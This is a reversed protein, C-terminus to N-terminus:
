EYISAVETHNVREWLFRDDLYKKAIPFVRRKRDWPQMQSFFSRLSEKQIVLYEIEKQFNESWHAM